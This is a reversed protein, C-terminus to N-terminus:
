EVFPDPQGTGHGLAQVRKLIEERTLPGEDPLPASCEALTGDYDRSWWLGSGDRFTLYLAMGTDQFGDGILRRTREGPPLIALPAPMFRTGGVLKTSVSYVPQESNNLIVEFGENTKGNFSTVVWASVKAAQDRAQSKMQAARERRLRVEASIGFALSVVVAVFTAVASWAEPSITPISM